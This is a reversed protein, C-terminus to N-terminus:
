ASPLGDLAKQLRGISSTVGFQGALEAVKRPHRASLPLADSETSMSVDADTAVRVVKEAAAVYDTAALLKKRQAAPMISSPDDAAAMIRELSGLQALLTASS